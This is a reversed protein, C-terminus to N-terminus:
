WRQRAGRTGGSQDLRGGFRRRAHLLCTRLRLAGFSEEKLVSRSVNVGVRVRGQLHDKTASCDPDLAHRGRRSSSAPRPRSRFGNFASTSGLGALQLLRVPQGSPVQARRRLRRPRGRERFLRGRLRGLSTDVVRDVMQKVSSEREPAGLKGRFYKSAVVNTATQSWFKPVRRGEARLRQRSEGPIASDRLEV